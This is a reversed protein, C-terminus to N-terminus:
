GEGGADIVEFDDHLACSRSEKVRVFEYDGAENDIGLRAREQDEGPPKETDHM